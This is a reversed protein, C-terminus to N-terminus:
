DPVDGTTMGDDDAPWLGDGACDVRALEETEVGETDEGNIWLVVFMTSGVVPTM